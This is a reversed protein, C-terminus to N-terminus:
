QIVGEWFAALKPAEVPTAMLRPPFQCSMRLPPGFWMSVFIGDHKVLVMLREIDAAAAIAADNAKKVTIPRAVTGWTGALVHATVPPM